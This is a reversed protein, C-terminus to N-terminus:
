NSKPSRPQLSSDTGLAYFRQSCLWTRSRCSAPINEQRSSRLSSVNSVDVIGSDDDRASSLTQSGFSSPVSSCGLVLDKCSIKCRIGHRAHRSASSDCRATMNMRVAEVPRRSSMRRIQHSTSPPEVLFLLPSTSIPGQQAESRRGNCIPPVSLPALLMMEEVVEGGLCWWSAFRM